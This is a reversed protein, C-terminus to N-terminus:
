GKKLLENITKRLWYAQNMAYGSSHYYVKDDPGVVLNTPFMKIGYQDAISKGNDILTYAFPMRQLFYEIDEKFDLGVSIFVVNPNDKFENALTNLDPIEMRCPMCNIFWFNLVVIRGEAKTLDVPNGTIDTTKFLKIVKGTKFYSSKPPKALAADRKDLEEGTLKVLLFDTKKNFPDEPKVTYGRFLLSQWMSFPYVNGASDKVISRETPLRSPRKQSSATLHLSFVLTLLLLARM